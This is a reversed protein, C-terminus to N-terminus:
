KHNAQKKTKTKAFFVEPCIGDPGASNLVGTLPNLEFKTHAVTMKNFHIKNIVKM